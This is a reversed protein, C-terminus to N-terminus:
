ESCLNHILPLYLINPQLVGYFLTANKEKELTSLNEMGMLVGSKYYPCICVTPQSKLDVVLWKNIMSILSSNSAFFSPLVMKRKRSWLCTPELCGVWSYM